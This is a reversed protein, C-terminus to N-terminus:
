KSAYGVLRNITKETLLRAAIDQRNEPKDLEARMAPDQYQTKLSSIRTDLEAPEVDLGEVISIESLVLGAKVREAAEERKRERHQEESVGEDKLHEQWTQGRMVLDRKESEEMANLQDEVLSQPFEVKSKESIRKILESEYQQLARTEQEATLQKKIDVKLEAVSAFPGIKKALEDDLKPETLENVQKVNVKFTVPKARLAPVGYDAPFTVKFEKDGGAKLGVLAEEFGPVFNKSGLILPYDKGSAGAVPEGKANSGDFDIMVEDGNKAAREVAKRDAMRKGLSKLVDDVEKASVQVKPKAMKIQKYNALSIKGIIDQESEFELTTYPVFKKVEINPQGIPRIKEQEVAKRFLDNIAHEMFEDFLRQQNASKEILHQPARGERFGPVKVDSFHSALVHGKIAELEEASASIALRARTPSKRELTVQM